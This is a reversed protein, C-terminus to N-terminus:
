LSSAGLIAGRAPRRDVLWLPDAGVVRVAGSSESQAAQVGAAPMTIVPVGFRATM